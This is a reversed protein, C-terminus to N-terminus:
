KCNSTGQHNEKPYWQDIDLFSWFFPDLHSSIMCLLKVREMIYYFLMGDHIIIMDGHMFFTSTVQTTCSPRQSLGVFFAAKMKLWQGKTHTHKRGKREKERKSLRKLAWPWSLPEDPDRVLRVVHTRSWHPHLSQAVWWVRCDIGQGQLNIVLCAYLVHVVWAILSHM